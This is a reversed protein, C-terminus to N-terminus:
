LHDPITLTLGEATVKDYINKFWSLYKLHM